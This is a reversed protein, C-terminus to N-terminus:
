LRLPRELGSFVANDEMLLGQKWANSVRFISLITERDIKYTSPSVHPLRSDVYLNFPVAASRKFWLELATLWGRVSALSKPRFAVFSWLRPSSISISQWRHCVSTLTALVLARSVAHDHPLTITELSLVFIRSLMEHPFDHNHM